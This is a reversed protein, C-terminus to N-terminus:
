VLFIFAFGGSLHCDKSFIYSNPTLQARVALLGEDPVFSAKLVLQAQALPAVAKNKEPQTSPTKDLKPPPATMTSFGLLDIEFHRGFKLILLAFSDIQKFSNFKVGAAIFIEGSAPSLYNELERLKSSFASQQEKKDTPLSKPGGDQVAEAVLPFSAVQDIPPLTLARKYGFGAAFGTVFFFSPGGLPYNAVAYVFLSPDHGSLQTYSGIASLSLKSTRIIAMGAYSTYPAAAPQGPVTAPTIVQKLFTGGIELSGNKFDIGMGDLHFSPKLDKKAIDKLAFEAGLGDLSLTLGATTLSADLLCIINSNQYGVGVRELHIPGFTKQIKIWQTNDATRVDASTELSNATVVDPQSKGSADVLGKGNKSDVGIPLSLPKVDQGVRVLAVFGLGCNIEKHPLKLGQTM